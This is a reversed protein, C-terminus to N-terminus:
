GEMDSTFHHVPVAPYRLALIGHAVQLRIAELLRCPKATTRHSLVNTVHLCVCAAPLPRLRTNEVPATLAGRFNNKKQHRSANSETERRTKTRQENAGPPTPNSPETHAPPCSSAAPTNACSPSKFSATRLMLFPTVMSCHTTKISSVENCVIDDPPAEDHLFAGPM